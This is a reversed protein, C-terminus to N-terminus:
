QLVFFKLVKSKNHGKSRTGLLSKLVAFMDDVLVEFDPHSKLFERELSCSRRQNCCIVAANLVDRTPNVGELKGKLFKNLKVSSM